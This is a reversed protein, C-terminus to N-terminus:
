GDVGRAPMPKAYGCGEAGSVFGIGVRGVLGFVGASWCWGCGPAALSM